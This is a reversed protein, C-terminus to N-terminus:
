FDLGFTDKQVSFEISELIGQLNRELWKGIEYGERIMEKVMIISSEPADTRKKSIWRVSVINAVCYFPNLSKWNSEENSGSNVIMTCDDEAYVTILQDKVIFM